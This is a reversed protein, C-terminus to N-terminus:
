GVTFYMLILFHKLINETFNSWFYSNKEIFADTGCFFNGWCHLDGQRPTGSLHRPPHSNERYSSGNPSLLIERLAPLANEGPLQQWKPVFHRGPTPKERFSVEKPSLLIEGRAGLANGGSFRQWKPVFHGGPTPKEWFSSGNPSLTGGPPPKERFSVEKPSLLIERLVGLANGGSFRQWKPVFHKGPSPEERFSVEKPSLTDREAGRPCKRGFVTAM